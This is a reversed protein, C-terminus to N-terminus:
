ENERTGATAATDLRIWAKLDGAVTGGCRSLLEARWFHFRKRLTNKHASRVVKRICICVRQFRIVRQANRDKVDRTTPLVLVAVFWLRAPSEHPESLSHIAQEKITLDRKLFM